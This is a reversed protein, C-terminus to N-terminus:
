IGLGNDNTDDGSPISGLREIASLIEAAASFEVNSPTADLRDARTFTIPGAEDSEILVFAGLRAFALLQPSAPVRTRLLLAGAALLSQELQAALDSRNGVALLGTPAQHTATSDSITRIMAAGATSNDTPDILIFSGTTRNDRYLDALMPRSTEVAIEGIDNLRLQEASGEALNVM